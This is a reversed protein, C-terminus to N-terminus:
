VRPLCTVSWAPHRITRADHPYAVCGHVISAHPSPMICVQMCLTPMHMCSMGVGRRGEGGM